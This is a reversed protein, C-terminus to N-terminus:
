AVPTKVRARPWLKAIMEPPMSRETPPMRANELMADAKVILSSIASPTEIDRAIAAPTPTPRSAPTATPRTFPSNIVRNFSTGNMTVSPMNPTVRPPALMKLLPWSTESM